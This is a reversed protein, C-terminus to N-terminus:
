ISQMAEAIVQGITQQAQAIAQGISQQAQAQQAQAQTQAQAQQVQAQAQAQSIIQQVQAQSQAPAQQTQAPAQQTQAPAQQPSNLVKQQPLKSITKQEELLKRAQVVMTAYAENGISLKKALVEASNGTLGLQKAINKENQLALEAEKTKQKAFDLQKQQTFIKVAELNGQEQLNNLIQKQLDFSAGQSEYFKKDELARKKANELSSATKKGYLSQLQTLKKQEDSEKQKLKYLEQNIQKINISEKSLSALRDEIKKYQSSTKELDKLSSKLLNNYDGQDDLLDKLGQRLNQLDLSQQNLNLGPNTNQNENAM